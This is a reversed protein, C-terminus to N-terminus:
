DTQHVHAAGPMFVYQSWEDGREFAAVFYDDQINKLFQARVRMQVDRASELSQKKLSQLDLPIM